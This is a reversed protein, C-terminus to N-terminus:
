AYEPGGSILCEVAWIRIASETDTSLNFAVMKFSGLRNFRVKYNTSGLPRTIQQSGTYVASKKYMLLTLNRTTASRTMDYIVDLGNLFKRDNTGFDYFDSMWTMWFRENDASSSNPCDFYAQTNSPRTDFLSFRGKTNTQWNNVFMTYYGGTSGATLLFSMSPIFTKDNTVGGFGFATAWSMWIDLENDYVMTCEINAVASVMTTAYLEKNSFIIVQSQARASTAIQFDNSFTQYNAVSIEGNQLANEILANSINKVSLDDSSIKYFGQKGNQDIGMFIIGDHVEQISSASACGVLRTLGKRIELPSGPTPNGVDEFFEISYQKFCVLYNRIRGLWVIGGPIDSASLYSTSVWGSAAAAASLDSNYIRGAGTGSIVGFFLYGDLGVFNTKTGLGTFDADTIKSWVGSSDILAADTGNTAAYFVNSGYNIGDLQTLAYEGASFSATIDTQTLTNTTANYFNSYRKTADQSIFVVRDKALSTTLGRIFEGANTAVLNTFVGDQVTDQIGARKCFAIKKSGDVANPNVEFFGNINIPISQALQNLSNIGAGYYIHADPKTLLPLQKTQM